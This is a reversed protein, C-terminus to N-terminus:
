RWIALLGGMAVLLVLYYGNEIVLLKIPKKNPSFLNSNLHSVLVMGVWAWIGTKMGIVLTASGPAAYWVFHALAYAMLLSLIFSSGYTRGMDASSAKMKKETWGVLKMWEKGFIPGYWLSGIIMSLVGCALIALFNIPVLFM